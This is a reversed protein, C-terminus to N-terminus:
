NFNSSTCLNTVPDCHWAAPPPPPCHDCDFPGCGAAIWADHALTSASVAEPSSGAAVVPCDCTDDVVVAGTCQESDITPNCTQATALRAQFDQLLAACDASGGGTGTAATAAVTTTSGGAGAGLGDVVVKGGCASLLAAGAGLAALLTSTRLGIQRARVPTV